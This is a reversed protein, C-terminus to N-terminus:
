YSISLIPLVRSNEYHQKWWTQWGFTFIVNWSKTRRMLTILSTMATMLGLLRLNIQSVSIHQHKSCYTWIHMNSCSNYGQFISFMTNTYTLPCWIFTQELHKEMLGIQWCLNTYSAYIQFFLAIHLFNCLSLKDKVHVSILLDCLWTSYLVASNSIVNVSVYLVNGEYNTANLLMTDQM